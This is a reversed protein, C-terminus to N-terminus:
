VEEYGTTGLIQGALYLGRCARTELTHTVARPDIFEYEVDYAPQM